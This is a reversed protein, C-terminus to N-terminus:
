EQQLDQVANLGGYLLDISRKMLEEGGTWVNENFGSLALVREHPHSRCLSDAIKYESRHNAMYSRLFNFLFNDGGEAFRACTVFSKGSFDYHKRLIFGKYFSESLIIEERNKCKQCQPDYSM